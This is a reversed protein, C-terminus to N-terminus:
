KITEMSPFIRIEITKLDKNENEDFKKRVDKAADQDSFLWIIHKGEAAQLQNTAQKIMKKTASPGLIENENARQLFPTYTPGKYEYM